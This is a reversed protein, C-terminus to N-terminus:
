KDFEARRKTSLKMMERMSESDGNELFGRLKSFSELFLDMQGLLKERNALFVKPFVDYSYLVSKM